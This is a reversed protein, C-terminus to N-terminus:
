EWVGVGEAWPTAIREARYMKWGTPEADLESRIRLDAAVWGDPTVEALRVWHEGWGVEAGPGAGEDVVYAHDLLINGTVPQRDADGMVASFLPGTTTVDFASVQSVTGEIPDVRWAAARSPGFTPSAPDHSHNDYAAITGDPWVEPAHQHYPWAFPTGVPDLLYPEFEPAWGEHNGLIWVLDGDPDLKVLADQHRVSVVVGGDTPDIAAGNAYAWAYLGRHRDLSNAGIRHTDLVASLKRRSTVAGHLDFTLVVPDEALVDATQTPDDYDIPFDQIEIEDNELSLLGGEVLALEHNLGNADLRIWEGVGQDENSWHRYGRGMWDLEFASGAALAWLHGEPGLRLDGVDITPEWWWTVAGREDLLVLYSPGGQAVSVNGLTWGPEVADPDLALVEVIPFRAPLPPLDLHFSRRTTRTGEVIVEVEAAEGPVFGLLPVTLDRTPEAFIATRDLSAGTLHVRTSVPEEATVRLERVYPNVALDAPAVLSVAVGSDPSACGAWLWIM